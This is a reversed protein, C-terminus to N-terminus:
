CPPLLSARNCNSAILAFVGVGGMSGPLYTSPCLGGLFFACLFCEQTM